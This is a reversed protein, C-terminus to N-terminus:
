YRKSLTRTYTAVFYAWVDTKGAHDVPRDRYETQQLCTTGAEVVPV